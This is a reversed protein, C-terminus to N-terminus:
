DCVQQQKWKLLDNHLVFERKQIRDDLMHHYVQLARQKLEREKPDDDESFTVTAVPVEAHDAYPFEFEGRLPM